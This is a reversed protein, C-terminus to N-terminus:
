LVVENMGFCYDVEMPQLIQIYHSFPELISSDTKDIM